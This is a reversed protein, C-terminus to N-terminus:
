AIKCSSLPEQSPRFSIKREYIFRSLKQPTSLLYRWDSQHSRILLNLITVLAKFFLLKLFLFWHDDLRHSFLKVVPYLFIFGWFMVGLDGGFELMITQEFNVFFVILSETLSNPDAISEIIPCILVFIM